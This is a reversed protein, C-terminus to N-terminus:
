AKGNLSKFDTNGFDPEPLEYSFCEPIKHDSRYTINVRMFIGIAERYMKSISDNVYQAYHLSRVRAKTMEHLHNKLNEKEAKLREIEQKREQLPRYLKMMRLHNKMEDWSPLFLFSVLGTVIFFFLNIMVFLFPNVHVENSALYETRLLALGYFVCSSIFLAAVVIGIKQLRNRAMKYLLAACHGFLFIAVTMGLSLLLAFLLNEGIVQFAMTNFLVEGLMILIIVWFTRKIWVQGAKPDFNDLLVADKENKEERQDIEWKLAAEKEKAHSIDLKGEPFHTEPQLQQLTESSLREYGGKVDAILPLYSDGTLAPLNREAFHRANKQALLKLEADKKRLFTEVQPQNHLSSLVISHEKM